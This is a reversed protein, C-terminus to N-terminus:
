KTIVKIIDKNQLYISNIQSESVPNTGHGVEITVSPIYLKSLAWDKYGAPDLAEMNGDATYGTLTSIDNALKKTKDLLDGTQGFYWYIVEGMTHYSVTRKIPNDQTLKILAASENESGPFAGKYLESSPKKAGVYNDWLADFNRNLDVGNANAKWNILYNPDEISKGDNLAIQKVKNLTEPKQIGQMGLQSISVGDPNVMPVFHILMDEENYSNLFDNLLLIVLKSTIYERAHIGGNILYQNDSDKKGVSASYIYRGDTTEDLSTLTMIDSYSNSLLKLDSEMDDYTYLSEKKINILLENDSTNTDYKLDNQNSAENTAIVSDSSDTTQPNSYYLTFILSFILFVNLLVLVLIIFILKKRLM